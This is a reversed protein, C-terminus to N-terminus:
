SNVDPSLLSRQARILAWRIAWFVAVRMNLITSHIAWFVVVRIDRILTWSLAWFVAVRMDGLIASSGYVYHIDLTNGLIGRREHLITYYFSDGFFEM